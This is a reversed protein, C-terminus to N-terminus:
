KCLGPRNQTDGQDNIWFNATGATGTGNSDDHCDHTLNDALHNEEIRNQASRSDVRIGDSTDDTTVGNREIHNARFLNSDADFLAIGSGGNEVIQNNRIKSATLPGCLFALDGCLVIADSVNTFVDNHSIQLNAATDAQIGFDNDFVQNHSVSSSGAPTEAVIVGTSLPGPTFKNNSIVNHDVTAAAGGFVVVGNPAIIFQM